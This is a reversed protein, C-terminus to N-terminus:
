SGKYQRKRKTCDKWSCSTRVHVDDWYTRLQAYRRAGRFEPEGEESVVGAALRRSQQTKPRKFHYSTHSAKYQRKSAKTNGYWRRANENSFETLLLDPSIMMGKQTYLFFSMHNHYVWDSRSYWWGHIRYYDRGEHKQFAGLNFKMLCHFRRIGGFAYIYEYLNDVIETKGTDHYIVFTQDFFM